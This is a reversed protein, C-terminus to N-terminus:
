LLGGGTADYGHESRHTRDEVQLANQRAEEAGAASRAREDQVTGVVFIAGAAFLAAVAGLIPRWQWAAAAPTMKTAGLAFAAFLTVAYFLLSWARVFAAVAAIHAKV